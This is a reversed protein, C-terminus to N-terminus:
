QGPNNKRRDEEFLYNDLLQQVREKSERALIKDPLAEYLLWNRLQITGKLYYWLSHKKVPSPFVKLFGEGSGIMSEPSTLSQATILLSNKNTESKMQFQRVMERKFMPLDFVFNGILVEPKELSQTLDKLQLYYAGGDPRKNIDRLVWNRYQSFDQYIKQATSFDGESSAAIELSITLNGIRKVSCEYSESSKKSFKAGLEALLSEDSPISIVAHALDTSFSLFFLFVILKM